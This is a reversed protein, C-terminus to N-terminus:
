FLEEKGGSIKIAHLFAKRIREGEGKPDCVYIGFGSSNGRRTKWASWEGDYKGRYKIQYTVCEGDFCRLLIQYGFYDNKKITVNAFLDNLSVQTTDISEFADRKYEWDCDDCQPRREKYRESKFIHEKIAIRRPATLEISTRHTVDGDQYDVEYFEDSTEDTTVEDPISYSCGSGLKTNLYQITEELTPDAYVARESAFFSAMTMAVAVMIIRKM